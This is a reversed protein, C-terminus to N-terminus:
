DIVRHSPVIDDEKKKDKKGQLIGFNSFIMYGLSIQFTKTKYELDKDKIVDTIGNVFHLQLLIRRREYGAGFRVSWNTKEYLHTATTDAQKASNLFSIQPGAFFRFNEPAVVALLPIDFYNLKIDRKKDSGVLTIRTGQTSYLIGTEGLVYQSGIGGIFGFTPSYLRSHESSVSSGTKIIAGNLGGLAYVETRQALCTSSCFFLIVALTNKM